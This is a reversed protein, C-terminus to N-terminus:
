LSLFYGLCFFSSWSSILKGVMELFHDECSYGSLELELRRSFPPKYVAEGPGLRFRAGKEKAIRISDITRKLNGDFDLAWQNLNCTAVISKTTQVMVPIFEFHRLFRPLWVCSKSTSKPLVFRGFVFILLRSSIATVRNVTMSAKLL